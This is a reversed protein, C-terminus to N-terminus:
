RAESRARCDQCIGQCRLRERVPHRGSITIAVPAQDENLGGCVTSVSEIMAATIEREQFRVTVTNEGEGIEIRVGKFRHEAHDSSSISLVSSGTPRTSRCMSVKLRAPKADDIQVKKDGSAPIQFDATKNGRGGPCLGATPAGGSGIEFPEEYASATRRTPAMSRTRYEAARPTSQLTVKRKDAAPEVQHRIKLEAM